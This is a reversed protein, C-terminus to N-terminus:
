GKSWFVDGHIPFFCATWFAVFASFKSRSSRGFLKRLNLPVENVLFEGRRYLWIISIAGM